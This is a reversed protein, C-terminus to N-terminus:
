HHQYWIASKCTLFELCGTTWGRVELARSPNHQYPGHFDEGSSLSHLPPVPSTKTSVSSSQQPDWGTGQFDLVRPFGSSTPPIHLLSDTSSYFGSQEHNLTPACLPPPSKGGSRELFKLRPKMKRVTLCTWYIAYVDCSFYYRMLYQSFSSSM